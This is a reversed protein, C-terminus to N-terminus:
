VRRRRVIVIALVGLGMLLGYTGPEPIVFNTLFVSNTTYQVDFFGHSDATLFTQGNSLGFFTGTLSLSSLIEFTDTPSIFNEFGDLIFIDLEGGLTVLGTVDLFDYDIGQLLGGLEFSLLSTSQLTLDDELNLTGFSNGPAIEGANIVDGSIFGGGGTLLGSERILLEDLTGVSVRGGDSVNLTGIGGGFGGLQLDVSTTLSSLSGSVNVTGESGIFNGINFTNGTSVSGGASINLEGAGSNGVYILSTSDITSDTGTVNVTGIGTSANGLNLGDASVLGGSAVNLTGTGSSGVILDSTTTLSSSVGGIDKGTVTVTGSSGSFSGILSNFSTVSGGDSVTLAGTGSAGVVITGSAIYTSGTGDVIVTGDGTATNGIFVTNGSTVSGGAEVNLTGIGFNGIYHQFATDYTSNAGNVTVTGMGSSADGIYGEKEATVSGGLLINLTGTGNSGVYLNGATNFNFPDLDKITLSSGTGTVTVTGTSGTGNGIYGEFDATVTGGAEVNLTGTGSNGVILTSDTTFTSSTGNVKVTGTGFSTFGIFSNIASTVSGGAEVNLTGIDNKGVILTGTNEWLSLAGTILVTSGGSNVEKSVTGNVNTLTDGLDVDLTGIGTDGVIVDGM